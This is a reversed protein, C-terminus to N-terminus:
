ERASERQSPLCIKSQLTSPLLLVFETIEYQMSQWNLVNGHESISGSYVAQIECPSLVRDWVHVNSIQGVFSQGRDFGGGYSDQEQGLIIIPKEQIPEPIKMAKIVSGKGDLWLQISGNSSDYTACVHTWYPLGVKEPMIYFLTEKGNISEEYLNATIKYILFANDQDETNM